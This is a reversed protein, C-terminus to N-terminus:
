GARRVRAVIRLRVQNGVMDSWGTAGFDSRDLTGTLLVTLRSLDGAETGRQRYLEAALIAPRTVGRVTIRGNIVAGDGSRRVTDSVFTIQPYQAADLVKPGKMAQSAFPFGAEARSVDVAVAIRSRSLDDFDITLDAQAVPMRGQVEEEGFDWYFAVTSAAPDLAYREPAASVPSALLVLGLAFCVVLNRMPASELTRSSVHGEVQPSVDRGDQRRVDPM